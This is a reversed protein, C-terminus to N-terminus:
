SNGKSVQLEIVADVPVAQGKPPNTGIVEGAPRPSDVQVQSFKTFGYVALTKQAQDVTQGAVDPIQHAEPGSGVIVTIMNTIASTQNAPPNTGIVKGMLELTSPSNVQKFKNFGAAKLKKVADAYSLSSVDPVERQEPGTSVNITIEDGTSVSANAGPDTSIVHDPPITSDPKQLTRTKFGRNQLAAIADASVQGRLDPVRAGHTSSGFTNLAIVVVITLM